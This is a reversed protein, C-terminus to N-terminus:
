ISKLFHAYCGFAELHSNLREHIYFDFSNRGFVPSLSPVSSGNDGM